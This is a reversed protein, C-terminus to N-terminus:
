EVFPLVGGPDVSVLDKSCPQVRGEMHDGVSPNGECDALDKGDEGCPRVLLLKTDEGVPLEGGVDGRKLWYEGTGWDDGTVSRTAFHDGVFTEEGYSSSLKGISSESIEGHEYGADGGM